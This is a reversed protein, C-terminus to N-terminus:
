QAAGDLLHLYSFTAAAPEQHIDFRAGGALDPDCLARPGLTKGGNADALAAPSWTAGAHIVGLLGGPSLPTGTGGGRRGPRGSPISSWSVGRAREEASCLLGGCNMEGLRIDSAGLLPDIGPDTTITLAALLTDFKRLWSSSTTPATDCSIMSPSSLM